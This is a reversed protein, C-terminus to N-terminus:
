WGDTAAGAADLRIERRKGININYCLVNLNDITEQSIVM